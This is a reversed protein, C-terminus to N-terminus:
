RFDVSTLTAASRPLYRCVALALDKGSVCLAALGGAVIDKYGAYGNLSELRTCSELADTVARWGAHEFRNHRRPAPHSPIRPPIPPSRPPAIRSPARRVRTSAARRPPRM